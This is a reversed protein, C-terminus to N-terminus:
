PEAEPRGRGKDVYARRVEITERADSLRVCRGIESARALFLETNARRAEPSWRSRGSPAPPRATPGDWATEALALVIYDYERLGMDVRELAQAYAGAREEHARFARLAVGADVRGAENVERLRDMPRGLREEVAEVACEVELFAALREATLVGDPPPVFPRAYAREELKRIRQDEARRASVSHWFRWAGLVATGCLLLLVLCGLGLALQVARSM